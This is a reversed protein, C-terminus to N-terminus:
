LHEIDEVMRLVVADVSREQEIRRPLLHIRREPLVGARARRTDDLQRQSHHESLYVPPRTSLRKIQKNNSANGAISGAASWARLRPSSGNKGNATQYPPPFARAGMSSASGSFCRAPHRASMSFILPSPKLAM